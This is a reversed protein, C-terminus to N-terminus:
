IGGLPDLNIPSSLGQVVECVVDCVEADEVCIDECELGHELCTEECVEGFQECVEECVEGDVVCQLTCERNEDLCVDEDRVCQFELCDKECVQAEGEGECVEEGFLICVENHEVCVSGVNVCPECVEDFELCGPECVVTENICGEHCEPPGPVLCVEDCEEEFRICEGECVEECVVSGGECEEKCAAEDPRDNCIDACGASDRACDILCATENAATSCIDRCEDLTPPGGGPGEGGGPADECVEEERVCEEKVCVEECVQAEGEGVCELVEETCIEEVCEFHCELAPEMIELNVCGETNVMAAEAQTPEGEFSCNPATLEVTSTDGAEIGADVESEINISEGSEVIVSANGTTKIGEESSDCQVEGGMAIITVQSNDSANVCSSCHLLDVNMPNIIVSCTGETRICDNGGGNIIFQTIEDGSIDISGAGCVIPGLAVVMDRLVINQPQGPQISVEMTVLGGLPVLVTTSVSFGDTSFLLVIDGPPINLTFRGSSDTTTSGVLVGNLFAEVTIGSLGTDQATAPKIFSFYDNLKVLFHSGTRPEASVLVDTVTGNITSLSSSTGGASSGDGGGGGGCAFFTLSFLLCSCLILKSRM